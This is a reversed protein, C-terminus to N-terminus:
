FLEPAALEARLSVSTVPGEARRASAYTVLAAVAWLVGFVVGATTQAVSGWASEALRPLLTFALAAVVLGAVGAPPTRALLHVARSPGRGHEILVVCGVMGAFALVGTSALVLIIRLPGAVSPAMDPQSDLLPLGQAVLGFLALWLWLPRLRYAVLSWVTRLRPRAGDAAAPVAVGVAGALVILLPLASVAFYALWMLPLLLLGFGGVVDSLAPAAILTDDVSGVFFHTPLAALLAILVLLAVNRLLVGAVRDAWGALGAGPVLRDPPLLAAPVAASVLGPHPLEATRSEEDLPDAREVVPEAVMHLPPEAPNM